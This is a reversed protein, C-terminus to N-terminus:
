QLLSVVTCYHKHLGKRDAVPVILVLLPIFFVNPISVIKVLLISFFLLSLAAVEIVLVILGTLQRGQMAVMPQSKKFGEMLGRPWPWSSFYLVFCDCRLRGVIRKKDM